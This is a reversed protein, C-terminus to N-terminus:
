QENRQNLSKNRYNLDERRQYGMREWFDNGQKNDKFVVLAIKHLGERKVAMEVAQVLARGYGFHRKGKAVALHYVLARRGDHGCLITGIVQNEEEAVFCTTPNRELFKEIGECSDDLNRMGMGEIDNWLVSAQKYDRKQMVRIM